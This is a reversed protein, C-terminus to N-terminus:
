PGANSLTNDDDGYALGVDAPVSRPRDGCRGFPFAGIIFLGIRGMMDLGKARTASSDVRRGSSTRVSESVTLPGIIALFTSLSMETSLGRGLPSKGEAVRTPTTMGLLSFWSGILFGTVGKGNAEVETGVETRTEEDSGVGLDAGVDAGVDSGVEAGVAAGVDTDVDVAAHWAVGIVSTVGLSCGADVAPAACVFGSSSERASSIFVTAM